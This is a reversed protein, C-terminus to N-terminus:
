EREACSGLVSRLWKSGSLALWDQSCCARLNFVIYCSLFNGWFKNENRKKYKFEFDRYPKNKSSEFVLKNARQRMRKNNSCTSTWSQTSRVNQWDVITRGWRWTSTGTRTPAHILSWLCTKNTSFVLKILNGSGLEKGVLEQCDLLAAHNHIVNVPFILFFVEPATKNYGVLLVAHNLKGEVCEPDSLILITLSLLSQIGVQINGEQLSPFFKRCPNCHLYPLWDPSFMWLILYPM